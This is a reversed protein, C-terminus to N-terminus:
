SAITKVRNRSSQFIPRANTDQLIVTKFDDILSDKFRERMDFYNDFIKFYVPNGQDDHFFDQYYVKCIKGASGCWGKLIALM